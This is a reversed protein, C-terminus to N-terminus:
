IQLGLPDGTDILSVAAPAPRRTPSPPTPSACAATTASWAASASQCNPPRNIPELPPTSLHHEPLRLTEARPDAHLRPQALRRPQRRFSSRLVVVGQWPSFPGGGEGTYKATCTEGWFGPSCRPTATSPPPPHRQHYHPPTSTHQQCVAAAPPADSARAPRRLAAWHSCESASPSPTRLSNAPTSTAHLSPQHNTPAFPALPRCRCLARRAVPRTTEGRRWTPKPTALLRKPLKHFPQMFRVAVRIRCGHFPASWHHPSCTPSNRRRRVELQHQTKGLAQRGFRTSFATRRWVRGAGGCYLPGVRLIVQTCEGNASCKPNCTVAQAAPVVALIALGLAIIVSRTMSPRTLPTSPRPHRTESCHPSLRHCRQCSGASRLRYLFLNALPRLYRSAARFVVYSATHVAVPRYSRACASCGFHPQALLLQSLHTLGRKEGHQLM